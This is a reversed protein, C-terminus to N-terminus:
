RLISKRLQDPWPCPFGVIPQLSSLCHLCYLCCERLVASLLPFPREDMGRERPKRKLFQKCTMSLTFRVPPTHPDLCHLAKSCFSHGTRTEGTKVIDTYLVGVELCRSRCTKEQFSGRALPNQRILAGLMSCYSIFTRQFPEDALSQGCNSCLCEVDKM